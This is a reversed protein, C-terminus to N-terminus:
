LTTHTDGGEVTSAGGQVAPNENHIPSGSLALLQHRSIRVLRGLRFIELRGTTILTRVHRESCGLVTAAQRVDMVPPIDPYTM